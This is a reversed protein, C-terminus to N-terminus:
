ILCLIANSREANLRGLTRYGLRFDHIVSGNRLRFDGFKAFQQAGELRATQAVAPMVSFLFLALSALVRFGDKTKMGRM